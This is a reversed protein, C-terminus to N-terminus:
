KKTYHIVDKFNDVYLGVIVENQKHFIVRIRNKDNYLSQPCEDVMKLKGIELGDIYWFKGDFKLDVERGEENIYTGEAEEVYIEDPRCDKPQEIVSALRSILYNWFIKDLRKGQRVIIMNYDPNVYIIQGKFGAAIFDRMEFLEGNAYNDLWWGNSYSWHRNEEDRTKSDNVWTNSIITEGNVKGEELFLKGFKALDRTCAAIGGYMRASGEEKDLTLLADFETGIPQWIKEELYKQISTDDKLAIELCYALIQTDISKYAFHTGPEHKMKITKIFENVNKSYYAKTLKWISKHDSFDLGSTMNLLHDITMNEKDASAFEPIFDSVKQNVSKIYGEEIAKGVLTTTIAKSISFVIAPKDKFHGNFYNEYLITDNKIVMLATTETAVLFEEVTNFGESYKEEVWLELPPLPSYPTEVFYIPKESSRVVRYQFKKYHDPNPFKYMALRSLTCGSVTSILVFLLLIRRTM